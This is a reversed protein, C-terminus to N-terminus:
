WPLEDCEWTLLRHGPAHEREFLDALGSVSENVSIAANPGGMDTRVYGPHVSLIAKDKAPVHQAWIARALMNLSVKTVRYLDYGGNSLEISSLISSTVACVGGPRVFPLLHAAVRAPGFANTIMAHAIEDECVDLFSKAPDPMIGANVLALDLAGKELGASLGTYSAADTVDGEVIELTDGHKDSLSALGKSESRQSARVHWGRQLLEGALGLGIGRSAGVILAHRAM